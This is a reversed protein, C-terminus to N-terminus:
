KLWEQIEKKNLIEKSFFETRGCGAELIINYEDCLKHLERELKFCEDTEILKLVEFDGFDGKLGKSREEFNTTFGIKINDKFEIIYVVGTIDTGLENLFQKYYESKGKSSLTKFLEKYKDLKMWHTVGYREICTEKRKISYEETKTYSDVGYRILLTEKRKFIIKKWEETTLNNLSISVKESYEKLMCPRKVGYKEINTENIKDQIEKLQFPYEVGYKKLNTDKIKELSEESKFFWGNEKQSQHLHLVQCKNSCFEQYGGFISRFKVNKGCYCKPHETIDNIIDYIYNSCNKGSERIKNYTDKDNYKFYIMIQDTRIINDNKNKIEGNLIKTFYDKMTGM